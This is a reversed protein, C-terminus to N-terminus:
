RGRLEARLATVAAHLEQPLVVVPDLDSLPISPAARGGFCILLQKNAARLARAVGRAVKVDDAILAGIVVARAGSREVADLWDTVPLDAGVYRIGIGARRAATAFALAGLDHRAGPPLGVLVIDEGRPLGAAMFANGLRRQVAGSAAHEAAVDLKGEAWGDGLARLAPMVFESAVQEFSGRAFMEDLTKEVGPEDLAMAYDVFAQTLSRTEVAEPATDTTTATALIQAVADDDIERIHGAATSPAWGDDILRRMARLRAIAAEDYVRYGSSARSPEVVGYRREWARLLQVPVGSRVSAQKITYM